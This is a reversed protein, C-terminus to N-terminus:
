QADGSKAGAGPLAEITYELDRINHDVTIKYPPSALDTYKPLLLSVPKMPNNGVGFTVSYDGAYVGDGQVRTVMTFSGDPGIAGTANRRMENDKSPTFGVLCIPASPISGDKYKVKGSVQYMAPGSKGCGVIVCFVSALVVVLNFCLVRM